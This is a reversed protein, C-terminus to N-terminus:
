VVPIEPQSPQQPAQPAIPQVPTPKKAASMPMHGTLSILERLHKNAGDIDGAQRSDALLTKLTEMEAM